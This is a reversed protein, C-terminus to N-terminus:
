IPKESVTRQQAQRGKEKYSLTAQRKKSLGNLFFHTGDIEQHQSKDIRNFCTPDFQATEVHENSPNSQRGNQKSSAKEEGQSSTRSAEEQIFWEFLLPNWRNRPASKQRNPQLMKSRVPHRWMNTLHIAQLGNETSSAKREGQPSTRSAEEQIFWEFLLPNWRNRLALKQRNPQLMKSPVPYRWMNTLYIAQLGNQKISAKAETLPSTQRIPEKIFGDFSFPNRDNKRESKLPNVQFKSLPINKIWIKPETRGDFSAEKTSQNAEKQSIVWNETGSIFGDFRRYNSEMRSKARLDNQQVEVFRACKRQIKPLDAVFLSPKYSSPKADAYLLNSTKNLYLDILIRNWENKIALNQTKKQITKTLEDNQKLNGHKYLNIQEKIRTHIFHKSNINQKLSNFHNSIKSTMIREIFYFYSYYFHTELIGQANETHDNDKFILSQQGLYNKTKFGYKNLVQNFFVHHKTKKIETRPTIKKIKIM